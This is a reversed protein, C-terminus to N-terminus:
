DLSPLESFPEVAMFGSIATKTTIMNAALAVIGQIRVGANTVDDLAGATATSVLVTDASVALGNFTCPGKVQMWGYADAAFAVPVVGFKWADEAETDTFQAAAFSEDAGVCDYQDLAESAQIYVYERQGEGRARTGLTFQPTTHTVEVDVGVPSYIEVM